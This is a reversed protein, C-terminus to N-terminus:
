YLGGQSFIPFVVVAKKDGLVFAAVSLLSLLRLFHAVPIYHPLAEVERCVEVAIDALIGVCAYLAIVGRAALLVALVRACDQLYLLRCSQSVSPYAGKFM